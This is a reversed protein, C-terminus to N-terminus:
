QADGRIKAAFIAAEVDQMSDFYDYRMDGTVGTAGLSQLTDMKPDFVFFKGPYDWSRYIQYGHMKSVYDSMQWGKQKSIYDSV